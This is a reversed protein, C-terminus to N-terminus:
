GVRGREVTVGIGDRGLDGSRPEAEAHCGNHRSQHRSIPRAPAASEAPPDVFSKVSSSSKLQTSACAIGFGVVLIFLVGLIGRQFRDNMTIV